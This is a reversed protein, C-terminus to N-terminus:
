SARGKACRVPRHAFFHRPSGCTATPSPGASPRTCIRVHTSSRPTFSPIQTLSQPKARAMKEPTPYKDLLSLVSQASLDKVHVALELFVRALLGHLQNVLRTQQKSNAELLAVTDRLQRFEPPNDFHVKRYAKNRAPQGM